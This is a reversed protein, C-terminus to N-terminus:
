CAGARIEQALECESAARRRDARGGVAVVYVPEGHPCCVSANNRRAYVAYVLATSAVYVAYVAYVKRGRPCSAVRTSIPRRPDATEAM